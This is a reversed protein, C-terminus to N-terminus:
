TIIVADELLLAINNKKCGLFNKCKTVHNLGIKLSVLMKLFLTDLQM